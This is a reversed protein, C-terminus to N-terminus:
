YTTDGVFSWGVCSGWTSFRRNEGALVASKMRRQWISQMSTAILTEVPKSAKRHHRTICVECVFLDVMGRKLRANTQKVQMGRSISKKTIFSVWCVSTKLM